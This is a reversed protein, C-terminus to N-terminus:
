LNFDEEKLIKIGLEVAKNYKSGPNEGVLVFDTKKSVSNTVTGGLSEIIEIMEDRTYNNLTGTLVFTKGEYLLDSNQNKGLYDM